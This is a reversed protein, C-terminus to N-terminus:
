SQTRRQTQAICTCATLVAHESSKEGSVICRQGDTVLRYTKPRGLIRGDLRRGSADRPDPRELLLTADKEFVDPAVSVPANLFRGLAQEIQARCQPETRTLLAPQESTVAPTTCAALMFSMMWTAARKLHPSSYRM